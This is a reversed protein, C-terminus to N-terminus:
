GLIVFVELLQQSLQHISPREEPVFGLCQVWLDVLGDYSSHDIRHAARDLPPRTQKLVSDMAQMPNSAYPRDLTFLEYLVMGLSWTDVSKGYRSSTLIEPAIYGGPTGIVTTADGYVATRKASDFDGVVLRSVSGERSNEVFINDSTTEDNTL